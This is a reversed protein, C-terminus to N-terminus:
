KDLAIARRAPSSQWFTLYFFEIPTPAHRWLNDGKKPCCVNVGSGSGWWRPSRRNKENMKFARTTHIPPSVGLLGLNQGGGRSHLKDQKAVLIAYYLAIFKGQPRLMNAFLSAM